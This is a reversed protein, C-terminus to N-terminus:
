KPLLKWGSSLKVRNAKVYRLKIELILIRLFKELNENTNFLSFNNNNEIKYYM